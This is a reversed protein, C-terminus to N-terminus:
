SQLEEENRLGEKQIRALALPHTRWQAKNAEDGGIHVFTGPFLTLVESLVDKLFSITTDSPNLLHESVGWVKRVEVKEDTSGLHPYAAIVAQAHGPMEIEPVVNIFRQAAYQVVDRIEAQTYFGGHPIGDYTATALNRRMGGVLTESRWAGVSTLLPYRSIEVRWGQDDTLHWHFSNMKHLALLDIYRKVFAVPMFHRSVDLHAGRWKFRPLDEIRVAPASWRVGAAPSDGFIQPPLLQRLTQVGYFAGAPRAATIRVGSGEVSLLYGESGLRAFLSDDLVLQVSGAQQSAAREAAVVSLAFGTAPRLCNALSNGVEMLAPHAFIVSSPRLEFQGRLRELQLPRPILALGPLEGSTPGSAPVSVCASILFLGFL